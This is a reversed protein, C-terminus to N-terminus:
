QGEKWVGLSKSWGRAVKWVGGSRVYPIAQKWVGGHKVRAGAITQAQARASWASYGASNHTRAWFYYLTGPTLASISTSGDSSVITGANPDTGSTSYSIQRSDVAAGGGGDTFTVDLTKQTINSIVPTSPANSLRAITPLAFSTSGNSVQDQWGNLSVAATFTKTGDSNHPIVISGSATQLRGSGPRHDHGSNYGHVGDGPDYDHYVPTGNMSASGQRLGRCSYTAFHWGAQWAVTSRNNTTDQSTLSWTLYSAEGGDVSNGNVTGSTPM